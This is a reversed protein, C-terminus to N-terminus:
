NQNVVKELDFYFGYELYEQDGICASKEEVKIGGLGEYFHIANTNDSFCWVIM